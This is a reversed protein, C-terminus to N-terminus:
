LAWYAFSVSAAFATLTAAAVPLLARWGYSLIADLRSNMATAIVALLLFTKSILLGAEAVITPASIMSNVAVVGFFAIIFWPFHLYDRIRKKRAQGTGGTGGSTSIVVAIIAVIPALLAVRTLKVITAVQGAGESYGYGAGLSQAVDHIAAGMLFGAQRDTFHLTDALIPYASLAVASAVTIGVLSFTFRDYELREKGIIAYIALAASAGCIATAGGALLGILSGQGSWKAAFVGALIVMAMIALLGLLSLPGMAAIQWLTIQTGLLVIGWRLLSTSCLQFGKVTKESASVFNLSLGLLLGAVIAPIGYHESLWTAAAAAVGTIILGPFYASIRTRVKPQPKDQEALWIEGYLDGQVIANLSPGREVM